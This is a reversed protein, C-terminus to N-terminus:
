GKRLQIVRVCAIVAALLVIVAYGVIMPSFVAFWSWAIVDTIKLVIFVLTLTELFGM